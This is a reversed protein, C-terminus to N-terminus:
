NVATQLRDYAPTLPRKPSNILQTQPKNAHHTQSWARFVAFDSVDPGVPISQCFGIGPVALPRPGPLCPHMM